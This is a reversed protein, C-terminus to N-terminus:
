ARSYPLPRSSFLDLRSQHDPAYYTLSQPKLVQLHLYNLASMLPRMVRQAVEEEPLYGGADGMARYLDGGPALEQVLYIGDLDEFAAYLGLISPHEMSSHVQIERAVQAILV